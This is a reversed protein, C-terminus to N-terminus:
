RWGKLEDKLNGLCQIAAENIGDIRGSLHDITAEAEDVRESLETVVDVNIASSYLSAIKEELQSVRAELQKQKKLFGFCKM